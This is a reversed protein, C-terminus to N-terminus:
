RADGPGARGSVINTEITLTGRRPEELWLDIGALNGTTVSNWALATGPQPRGCRRARSQPFQGARLARHSQGHGDAQRALHTERGRGRYEAGQWLVRVRRGLDGRAYPRVTQAVQRATCCM